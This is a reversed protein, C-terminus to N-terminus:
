NNKHRAQKIVARLEDMSDINKVKLRNFNQLMRRQNFNLRPLHALEGRKERLKQLLETHSIVQKDDSKQRELTFQQSIEAKAKDIEKSWTVMAQRFAVMNVVTYILDSVMVVIIIIPLILGFHRELLDVFLMVEPQVIKVVFVCALGWFLSIPIAIRGNINLPVDHYDWWTAHFAKELVYSTLYELVTVLVASYVYLLVINNQYPEVFYLVSVVGFGYIPCYPGTLFGRYDFKKDKLSCYVTEWLWGLVSYIFFLLIAQNVSFM